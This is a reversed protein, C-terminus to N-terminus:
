KYKNFILLLENKSDKSLPFSYGREDFNKKDIIFRDIDSAVIKNIIFKDHTDLFKDDLPVIWGVFYRSNYFTVFLYKEDFYNIKFSHISNSINNKKHLFYNLILIATKIHM